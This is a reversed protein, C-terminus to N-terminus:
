EKRYIVISPFYLFLPWLVSNCLGDYFNDKMKPSLPVPHMTVGDKEVVSCDAIRESSKRSFDSIGVWHLSDFHLRSVGKSGFYSTLATALGGAISTTRIRDNIISLRFPLRFSITILKGM